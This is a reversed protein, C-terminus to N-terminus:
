FPLLSPPPPTLLPPTPPDPVGGGGVTHPRELVERPAPHPGPHDQFRLGRSGVAFLARGLRSFAPGLRSLAPGSRSRRMVCLRHSTLSGVFVM